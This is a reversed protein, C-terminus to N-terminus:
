SFFPVPCTHSTVYASRGSESRDDEDVIGLTIDGAEDLLKQRSSTLITIGTTSLLVGKLFFICATLLLSLKRASADSFIKCLIKDKHCFDFVAEVREDRHLRPRRSFSDWVTACEEPWQYPMLPTDDM